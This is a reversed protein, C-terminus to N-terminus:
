KTELELDLYLTEKKSKEAYLKALTTKGIQRAGLLAVVPNTKLLTTLETLEIRQIM